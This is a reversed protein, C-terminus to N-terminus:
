DLDSDSDSFGSADSDSDDRINNIAMRRINMATALAGLLGQSSASDQKPPLTKVDVTKLNSRGGLVIEDMVSMRRPKAAKETRSTNPVTKRLPAAAAIPNSDTETAISLAAIAKGAMFSDIDAAPYGDNQMKQRVAGEPLMEKM